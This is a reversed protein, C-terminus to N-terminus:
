LYHTAQAPTIPLIGIAHNKTNPYQRAKICIRLYLEEDCSLMLYPTRLRVWIGSNPKAGDLKNKPKDSAEARETHKDNTDRNSDDGHNKSVGIRQQLPSQRAPLGLAMQAKHIHPPTARSGQKFLLKLGEVGDASRFVLYCHTRLLQMCEYHM